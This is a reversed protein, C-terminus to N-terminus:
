EVVGVQVPELRRLASTYAAANWTVRPGSVSTFLAVLVARSGSKILVGVPIEVDFLGAVTHEFRFAPKGLVTASGRDIITGGSRFTDLDDSAVASFVAGISVTTAASVSWAVTIRDVVVGPGWPGLVLVFNATTQQPGGAAYGQASVLVREAM